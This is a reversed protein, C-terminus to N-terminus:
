TKQHWREHSLFRTVRDPGPIWLLHWLPVLCVPRPKPCSGPLHARGKATDRECRGQVSQCSMDGAMFVAARAPKAAVAAAKAGIAGAASGATLAWRQGFSRAADPSRM